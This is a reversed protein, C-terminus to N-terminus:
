RSTFLRLLDRAVSADVAALDTTGHVWVRTAGDERRRVVHYVRRVTVPVNVQYSRTRVPENTCSAGPRQGTSENCRPLSSTATTTQETRTERQMETRAVTFVAVDYDASDPVLRWGNALLVTRVSERLDLVVRSHVSAADESTLGRVLSDPDAWRFRRDEELEIIALAPAMTLGSPLRAERVRPSAQVTAGSSGACGAVALLLALLLPASPRTM